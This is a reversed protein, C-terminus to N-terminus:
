ACPWSVIGLVGLGIQYKCMLITAGLWGLNRYNPGDETLEGWVDGNANSPAAHKDDISTVCGLITDDPKEKDIHLHPFESM